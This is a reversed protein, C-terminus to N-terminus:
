KFTLFGSSKFKQHLFDLLAIIKGPKHKRHVYYAAIRNQKPTFGALIKQLDQREVLEKTLFDPTYIIGMGAIAASFLCSGSHARFNGSVRYHQKAFEWHTINSYVLCNHKVLEEPSSPEGYKKIYQPSAYCHYNFEFLDLKATLEPQLVYEEIAILFDIHEELLSVPTSTHIIQLNIAPYSALFQQFINIFLTNSALDPPTCITISGTPQRHRSLFQAQLDQWEQLLSQLRSFLFEGEATLTLKRTTRILLTCALRQELWQIRKTVVANTSGLEEAAQKFSKKEVVKAFTQLCDFLNLM